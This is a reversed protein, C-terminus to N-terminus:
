FKGGSASGSKVDPCEIKKGRVLLEKSFLGVFRLGSLDLLLEFARAKQRTKVEKTFFKILLAAMLRIIASLIFLSYFRSGMVPPLFRYLSGALLAGLALGAGSLFNYYSICRVRKTEIAVDYIFNSSSLNLGAWIFGSFLQVVALYYINNSIIWSLPILCTIMSTLKIITINGYKDSFAGWYRATVLSTAVAATVILTFASYDIKLEQLLYVAFFPSATSVGFMLLSSFIAFRAFNSKRWKSIFSRFSFYDGTKTKWTPEYMKNLFYWSIFRSLSAATMLIAFGLFLNTLRFHNLIAGAAIVAFSYVIGLVTGRWGFYKGRKSPPIYESMLSAWAPGAFLNFSSTISFLFIFVWVRLENNFLFPAFFTPIWLAAATFVCYSVLKKRSKLKATIDASKIQLISVLSNRVFHLLGIAFTNAGLFLALPAAFQDIIGFQISAFVGEWFSVALSKKIKGQRRM